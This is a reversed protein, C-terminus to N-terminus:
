QTCQNPKEGTHIRQHRTLASKHAFSKGCQSCECLKKGTHILLHTKLNGTQGSAKSFFSHPHKQTSLRSNTYRVPSSCSVERQSIDGKCHHRHKIFPGLKLQPFYQKCVPCPGRSKIQPAVVSEGTKIPLTQHGRGSVQMNSGRPALHKEIPM